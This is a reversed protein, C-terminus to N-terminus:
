RGIVVKFGGGAYFHGGDDSFVSHGINAYVVVNRVGDIIGANVLVLRDRQFDISSETRLEIMAAVKRTFSRGFAFGFGSALERSPDHLPKELEGNFVFTFAHFERAVLLPLVITQGAESLGKEAGHAPAFELQPYVAVSIGRREDGYFDFKGGTATPSQPARRAQLLPPTGHELCTAPFDRRAPRYACKLADARVQRNGDLLGIEINVKISQLPGVPQGRLSSRISAYR